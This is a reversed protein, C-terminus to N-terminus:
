PHAHGPTRLLDYRKARSGLHMLPIFLLMLEEFRLEYSYGLVLAATLLAKSLGRNYASFSRRTRSFFLLWYLMIILLAYLSLGFAGFRSLLGFYMSHRSGTWEVPASSVEFHLAPNPGAMVGFIKGIIDRNNYEQITKIWIKERFEINRLRQETWNRDFSSIILDPGAVQIALTAVVLAIFLLRRGKPMAGPSLGFTIAVIILACGSATGQGSAVTMLLTGLSGLLNRIHKPRALYRSLFIGSAIALITASHVSLPRGENVKLGGTSMLFDRAVAYRLIILVAALGAVTLIARSIQYALEESYRVRLALLLFPALLADERLWLLAPGPQVIVGAVFSIFTAILLLLVVCTIAINRKFPSSLTALLAVLTAVFGTDSTSLNYSGIMAISPSVRIDWWLAGLLIVWVASVTLRATVGLRERPALARRFLEESVASHSDVLTTADGVVNLRARTNSPTQDKPPGHRLM